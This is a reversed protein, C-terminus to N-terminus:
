PRSEKQIPCELCRKRRGLLEDDYEKHWPRADVIHGCEGVFETWPLEYGAVPNQRTVRRIEVVRRLRYRTNTELAAERGRQAMESYSTV